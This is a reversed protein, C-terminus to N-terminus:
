FHQTSSDQAPQNLSVAPQLSGCPCMDVGEREGALADRHGFGVVCCPVLLRDLCNMYTLSKLNSLPDLPALLLCWASEEREM